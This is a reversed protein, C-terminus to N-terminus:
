RSQPEVSIRQVNADRAAALVEAVYQYRTAAQPRIAITPPDQKAAILAFENELAGRSVAIGNWYLEGTEKVSLNIAEAPHGDCCQPLDLRLRQTTLPTAIMFIILLVLMVDVLPTVNIEGIARHTNGEIAFASM